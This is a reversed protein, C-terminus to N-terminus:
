GENTPAMEALTVGVKGTEEMKVGCEIQYNAKVKRQAKNSEAIRQWIGEKTNVVTWEAGNLVRRVRSKMGDKIVVRMVSPAAYAAFPIAEVIETITTQGKAPIARIAEKIAETLALTAARDEIITSTKISKGNFGNM